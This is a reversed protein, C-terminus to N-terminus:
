IFNYLPGSQYELGPEAFFFFMMGQSRKENLIHYRITSTSPKQHFQLYFFIKPNWSNKFLKKKFFQFSLNKFFFYSLFAWFWFINKGRWNWEFGDVEVMFYWIKVSFSLWPVINMKKTSGPRSYWLPGKSTKRGITTVKCHLWELFIIVWADCCMFQLLVDSPNIINLLSFLWSVFHGIGCDRRPRHEPYKM